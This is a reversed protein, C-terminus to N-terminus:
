TLHEEYNSVGYHGDFVKARDNKVFMHRMLFLFACTNKLGGEISQSGEHM